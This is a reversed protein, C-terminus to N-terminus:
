SFLRGSELGFATTRSILPAPIALAQLAFAHEDRIEKVSGHLNHKFIHSPNIARLKEDCGLFANKSLTQRVAAPNRAKWKPNKFGVNGGTPFSAHEPSTRHL